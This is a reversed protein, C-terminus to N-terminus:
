NKQRKHRLSSATTISFPIRAERLVKSQVTRSFHVETYARQAVGGINSAAKSASRSQELMDYM